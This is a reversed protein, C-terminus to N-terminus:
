DVEEVTVRFRQGNKLIVTFLAYGLQDTDVPLVEGVQPHQGESAAMHQAIATASVTGNM